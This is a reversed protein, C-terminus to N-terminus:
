RGSWVLSHEIEFPTSFPGVLLRYTGPELRWQKADEDWYSCAHKKNLSIAVTESEGPLIWVKAYGKLERAPRWVKTSDPPSIYLQVVEHGPYIGTNKVRVSIKLDSDGAEETMKQGSVTLGSYEFTTYSLGHGFQWQATRQSQPHRYGIQLGEEYKIEYGRETLRAPFNHYTPVHEEDFKKPWTTALRGSPTTKGTLINAIAQGGEQGPFHANLIADVENVFPSVDIPNGCNLVLVTKKSVATVARILRVQPESISMSELDFGESEYQQNRGAFIISVDASFAAQVAEAIAAREDSFEEYCLTAGHPTPEYDNERPIRARSLLRVLYPKGAEMFVSTRHELRAPEFLFDEMTVEHQKPVSLVAKSEVFLSFSGTVRAALTHPGTTKPTITTSIECSFGPETLGPKLNRVMAVVPTKQHETYVPIDSDENYYAVDFGPSGNRSTTCDLPVIPIIRNTNVGRIYKVLSPFPHADRLYDLPKQLYQPPASASGGGSVVPESAPVGIVAIKPARRMDLPLVGQENKLLVIGESAIKLALANTEPIIESREPELSHSERTKEVLALVRSVCEDVAKEDVVGDRVAAVLKPGRLVSPGPMELDLGANISAACSKTAFWDSVLCGNYAWEDRLIEKLFPHETTHTGNLKNYSVMLGHPESRRLMEQFAALYIERVARSNHSQAVSYERRKFESENCAFHKPCAAVGQSQIGRVVGAALQGSLLPDESFCEFNRGGRPDRHINITPGLIVQASKLKAQYALARGLEEMLTNNWTAGYLTSSPFIATPVGHHLESGKVGNVSDVLKLPPINLRSVGSSHVFDTGSLLGVKEELTLQPLLSTFNPQVSPAADERASEDQSSPTGARSLDFVEDVTANVTKLNGM